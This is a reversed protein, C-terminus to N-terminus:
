CHTQIDYKIIISVYNILNKIALEILEKVVLNAILVTLHHM